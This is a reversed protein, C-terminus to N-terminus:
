NELDNILKQMQQKKKEDKIKGSDLLAQYQKRTEILTQKDPDDAIGAIAGMAGMGDMAGAAAAMEQNDMDLRQLANRNLPSPPEQNRNDLTFEDKQKSYFLEEDRQNSGYQFQDDAPLEFDNSTPEFGIDDMIGNMLDKQSEDPRSDGPSKEDFPLEFGGADQGDPRAGVQDGFDGM